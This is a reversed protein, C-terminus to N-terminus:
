IDVKCTKNIRALESATDEGPEGLYITDVLLAYITEDDLEADLCKQQAPDDYEAALTKRLTAIVDLGCDSLADVMDSAQDQDIGFQSFDFGSEGFAAPDVGNSQFTDVGITDIWSAATCEAQKADFQFEGNTADDKELSEALPAVYDDASASGEGSATTTPGDPENDVTATTTTTTAAGDDATTTTDRSITGFTTKNAESSDSTGCASASGLLILASVVLALKPM